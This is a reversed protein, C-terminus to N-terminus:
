TALIEKTHKEVIVDIAAKDEKSVDPKHEALIEKWKAHARIVPNEYTSSEGSVDFMDKHLFEDSEMLWKLTDDRDLYFGRIGVEKMAEVALTEKTVTVGKRVRSFNRMMENHLILSEYSVASCKNIAGANVTIHMGGLMSGLMTGGMEFGNQMDSGKADTHPCAHSPIGYRRGLMTGVAAVLNHEPGGEEFDGTRMDIKVAGWSFIAPTGKRLTQLFCLCALQEAAIMVVASAATGPSQGGIIATGMITIPVGERAAIRLAGAAKYDIEFGPLITALMGVIPKKSLDDTKALAKAMEIFVEMAEIEIPIGFCFKSTHKLMESLALMEGLGEPVNRPEVAPVVSDIMDLADNIITLNRIDDLTAQRRECSPYEAVMTMTGGNTHHHTEDGIVLSGGSRDYVTYQSPTDKIAQEVMKRPIKVVHEDVRIAGAEALVDVAKPDGFRMGVDEVLECAADHIMELEQETVPEWYQM